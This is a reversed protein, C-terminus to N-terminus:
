GGFVLLGGGRWLLLLRVRYICTKSEDERARRGGTAGQPILFWRLDEDDAIPKMTSEKVATRRPWRDM